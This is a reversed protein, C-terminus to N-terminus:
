LHAYTKILKELVDTTTPKNIVTDMGAALCKEEVDDLAYATLAVITTKRAKEGARIKTAVEMGSMGPLGLDMFILAYENKQAMELAQQGDEAIDPSYGIEELLMKNVLMAIKEDEVLLIKKTNEATTTTM